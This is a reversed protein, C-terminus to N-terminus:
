EASPRTDPLAMFDQVVVFDVSGDEMMQAQRIQAKNTARNSGEVNLELLGGASVTGMQQMAKLFEAGTLGDFGVENMAVTLIDAIGFIIGYSLLYSFTKDTDPYGGATFSELAQQVGLTDPDTWWLYPFVGYYSTSLPANAGLINLVDQNMGWNVSGLVVQDYFGLARLTGIVQAVGFSLSQMYIVNAGNVLLNQLQGTVDAAPDVPQEELPLVTIGLSKAFALSEPTTAGAGFANAWGVVGAIIEDGAGEPKIDAWNDYVFQLFGAFQDSYIPVVGVTYGDPPNYLADAIVGAAINVIEDEVM